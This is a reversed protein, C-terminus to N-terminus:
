PLVTVTGGNNSIFAATQPLYRVVQVSSREIWLRILPALGRRKKINGWLFTANAIHVKLTRGIGGRM